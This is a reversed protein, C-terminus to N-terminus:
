AWNVYKIFDIFDWKKGIRNTSDTWGVIDGAIFLHYPFKNVDFM